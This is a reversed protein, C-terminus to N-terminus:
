SSRSFLGRDLLGNWLKIWTPWTHDGPIALAREPPLLPQLARHAYILKDMSGYALYIPPSAPNNAHEDLWAWLEPEFGPPLVNFLSMKPTPEPGTLRAIASKRGLFPAILVVGNIEDQHARTYLLSGLGGLSVGVLWIDRYGKARAPLIVDQHLREVIEQSVYYGAHANVAVTDAQIGRAKLAQQFGFKRFDWATDEIGPLFVILTKHRGSMGADDRSLKDDPWYQVAACGSIILVSLLLTLLMAISMRKITLTPM